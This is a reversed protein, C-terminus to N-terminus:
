EGEGRVEREKKGNRKEKRKKKWEVKREKKGEMEGKWKEKREEKGKPTRCAQSIASMFQRLTALSLVRM